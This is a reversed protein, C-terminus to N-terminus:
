ECQMNESDWRNCLSIRRCREECAVQFSDLDNVKVSNHVWIDDPHNLDIRYPGKYLGSAKMVDRIARAAGPKDIEVMVVDVQWSQWDWSELISREMGEVDVTMLDIRTGPKIGGKELFTQLQACPTKIKEVLRIRPEAKLKAKIQSETMVGSHGILNFRAFMVDKPEPCVVGHLVQTASDRVQRAEKVLKPDGEILVGSWGFAREFFVTNSHYFGNSGGFEVFIANANM